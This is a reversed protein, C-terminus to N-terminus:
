EAVLATARDRDADTGFALVVDNGFWHLALAPERGRVHVLDGPEIASIARLSQTIPSRLIGDSTEVRLEAGGRDTGSVLRGSAREVDLPGGSPRSLRGSVTVPIPGGGTVPIAAADTARFVPYGIRRGVLLLLAAGILLAPALWPRNVPLGPERDIWATRLVRGWAGLVTGVRTTLLADVPDRDLEQTGYVRMPALAGPYTTRVIVPAGSEADFALLDFHARGAALTAPDCAADGTSGCGPVSAASFRLRVRVASDPERDGLEDVTTAAPNTAGAQELIYRDPVTGPDGSHAAIAAADAAMREPDVVVVGTVDRTRLETPTLESRVVVVDRAGASDRVFYYGAPTGDERPPAPIPPLQALGELEVVQLSPGTVRDVLDKASSRHIILELGAFILPLLGLLLLLGILVPVVPSAAREARTEPPQRGLATAIVWGVAVPLAGLLALARSM